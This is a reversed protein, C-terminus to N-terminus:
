EGGIPELRALHAASDRAADDVFTSEGVGAAIGARGLMGFDPCAVVRDEINPAVAKSSTKGVRTTRGCSRWQPNRM